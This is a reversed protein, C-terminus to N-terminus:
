YLLNNYYFIYKGRCSYIQSAFGSTAGVWMGNITCLRRERKNLHKENMCDQLERVHYWWSVNKIKCLTMVLFFRLSAKWSICMKVRQRSIRIVKMKREM